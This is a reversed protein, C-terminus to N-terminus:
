IENHGEIEEDLSEVGGLERGHWNREKIGKSKNKSKVVYKKKNKGTERGGREGEKNTM